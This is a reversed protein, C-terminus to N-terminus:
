TEPCYIPFTHREICNFILSSEIVVLNASYNCLAKGSSQNITGKKPPAAIYATTGQAFLGDGM